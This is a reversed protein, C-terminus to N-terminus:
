RENEFFFTTEFSLILSKFNVFRLQVTGRLFRIALIKNIQPVKVSKLLSNEGLFHTVELSKKLRKLAKQHDATRNQSYMSVLYCVKFTSSHEKGLM